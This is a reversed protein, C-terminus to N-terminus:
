ATVPTISDYGRINITTSKGGTVTDDSLVSMKLPIQLFDEASVISYDGDMILSVKEFTYEVDMGEESACSIVRLKGTAASATFGAITWSNYAKNDSLVYVTATAGIAGTSIATITGHTYNISYDTGEVYQIGTQGTTDWVEVTGSILHALGIPQAYDFQTFTVENETGTGAAINNNVLQGKFARSVMVPSIEPSLISGGIEISASATRDAVGISGCQRSTHKISDETFNVTMEDILGFVEETGFSGDEYPTWYAQVGFLNIYDSRAM